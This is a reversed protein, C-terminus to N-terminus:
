DLQIPKATIEVWAPRFGCRIANRVSAINSWAACYFPVKGRKLIEAALRATLASALGRRRYEPLVDIGIQWMEPGDASCAALAILRGNDYAGMGLVDLHSRDACLANGWAPLYLDKFDPQELLRLEYDCPLSPILAPDPLFYEAMHRPKLGHPALLAELKQIAPAEFARYNPFERRFKEAVSRLEERVTFVLNEGYSVMQFEFPLKLYARARPHTVGTFIGGKLLDDRSCGLELASQEMAIKYIEEKTLM